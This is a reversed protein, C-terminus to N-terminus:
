GATADPLRGKLARCSPCTAWSDICDSWISWGAKRAYRTTNLTRRGCHRCVYLHKTPRYPQRDPPCQAGVTRILEQIRAEREAPTRDDDAELRQGAAEWPWKGHVTFDSM